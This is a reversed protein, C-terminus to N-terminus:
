SALSKPVITRTQFSSSTVSIRQLYVSISLASPPLATFELSSSDCPMICLLTIHFDYISSLLLPSTHCHHLTLTLIKGARGSSDQLSGGTRTELVGPGALPGVLMGRRPNKYFKKQCLYIEKVLSKKLPYRNRVALPPIVLFVCENM